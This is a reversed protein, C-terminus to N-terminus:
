FFGFFAGQVCARSTVEVKREVFGDGTLGFHFRESPKGNIGGHHWVNGEGQAHLM